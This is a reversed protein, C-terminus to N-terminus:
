EKCYRGDFDKGLIVTVDITIVDSDTDVELTQQQEVNNCRILEAITQAATLDATRSIVVTKEYDDKEANGIREVEYGFNVFLQKTRSAMGQKETGNLVELAITLEAESMVETNALADVLQRVSERVYKGESYPFLLIQGDDDVKVKDGHVPKSILHDADLSSLEDIFSLLARRSMNTTVSRYFQPFVNESTLYTGQKGISKLLAQIFKQHRNRYELETEDLDIYSVYQAIKRGDLVVSGSPIMYLNDDENIEIPNPIFLSLGELLDVATEVGALDFDIVYTIDRNILDEIKSKYQSPSTPKYLVDIRDMRELSDIIDGWDGPIDLLAGNGTLPHYFFLETFLLKEQDHVMVLTSILRGERIDDTIKDSRLQLAILTSSAAIVVIILILIIIGKDFNRKRARGKM